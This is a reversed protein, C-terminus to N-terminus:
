QLKFKSVEGNLATAVDSNNHANDQIANITDTLDAATESVTVIGKSSEEVAIDVAEISECIITTANEVEKAIRAFETMM